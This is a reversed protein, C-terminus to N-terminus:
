LYCAQLLLQCPKFRQREVITVEGYTVANAETTITVVLICVMREAHATGRDLFQWTMRGEALQEEFCCVYVKIIRLYTLIKRTNGAIQALKLIMMKEGIDAGGAVCEQRAGLLM